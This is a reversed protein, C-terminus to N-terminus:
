RAGVPTMLSVPVEFGEPHSFILREPRSNTDYIFAIRRVVTEGPPISAIPWRTDVRGQFKYEVSRRMDLWWGCCEHGSFPGDEPADDPVSAGAPLEAPEGPDTPDLRFSRFNVILQQSDLNTIGVDYVYYSKGEPAYQFRDFWSIPGVAQYVSISLQNQNQQFQLTEPITTCASAVFLTLHALRTYFRAM